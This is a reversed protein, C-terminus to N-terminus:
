LAHKTPRGQDMSRAVSIVGRVVELKSLLRSLQDVGQTELTLSILTTRDGREQTRVGVMNVKEEAVIVSLDRLLGVRDWSEIHVAVPYYQGTRGWDVEVLRQREDEHLVNFCDRRHVTVGRSRTVYGIIQDGPVPSCCRGLQTLLDGTGLVQIGPASVPRQLAREDLEPLDEEPEPELFRALRLAVQHLSVGGHSLAVHLDELSSYGLKSLLEEKCEALSLGLRRLERELLERGKDINEARELKRFWQRIKERAHSTRVYGLNANLWDRSPGRSSRGSVIEVVDGNELRQNLAVLRGNVKAGVCHHGLETHIRYAFDVATAGAPLDKIAGKPTFIFVQDQFIDTKVTEVFDEAHAMDRQWELLQRLWSLREEFRVDQSSGEKYRWHAAIGYEALRHMEHTRIQVELPRTNLAMVTTHLSQYVGERPNALYDDFQGPIPRWMGHVIGLVSYCDSVSDVLVRMALLDYIESVSKGQDAYKQIKQYVSYVHKARGQVTAKINNKDLEARLVKEVQAIYRERSARGSVILRSIREYDHPQLHRFALDELEWKLQWIGLRSALPAYIEMTEQAIRQRKEPELFDLTRMNHLRDALKVIVVRVDEAMALLMKRLNEAQNVGDSTRPGASKMTIRELKTAGDVLKAIEPGFRRKIENNPVACDEQVDHLLAAAIAGADLQLEAITLAADLPHVIYPEGSKRQQDGHATEAFRYAEEILPLKDEPLYSRARELLVDLGGRERVPSIAM